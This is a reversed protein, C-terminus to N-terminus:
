DAFAAARQVREFDDLDEDRPDPARSPGSDWGCGANTEPKSWLAKRQEASLKQHRSRVM